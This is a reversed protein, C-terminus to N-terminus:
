SPELETRSRQEIIYTAAGAILVTAWFAVFLWSAAENWRVQAHYRLLAVFILMPFVISCLAVNRVRRLENEFVEQGAAMGLGILWAGIARGTLASLTWPWHPAVSLPVVLLAVGIVLMVVSQAAILIKLAVPLSTTREPDAAAVQLQRVLAIALAPPFAVYVVIWIWGQPQGTHFRDIHYLTVLLTIVTFTLVAIVGPRANRWARERASKLELVGATLFGSGMFAATIAPNVTWAFYRATSAAFLYLATGMIFVLVSATTLAWRMEPIVHRHAPRSASATTM